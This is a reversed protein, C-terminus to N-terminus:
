VPHKFRNLVMKQVLLYNMSFRKGIAAKALFVLGPCASDFLAQSPTATSFLM